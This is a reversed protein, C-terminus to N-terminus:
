DSWDNHVGVTIVSLEMILCEDIKKENV